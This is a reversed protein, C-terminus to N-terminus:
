TNNNNEEDEDMRFRLDDAKRKLEARLEDLEEEEALEADDFGSVTAQAASFRVEPSSGSTVEEEDAVERIKQAMFFISKGVHNIAIVGRRIYFVSVLLVIVIAIEVYFM